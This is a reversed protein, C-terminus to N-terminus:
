CLFIPASWCVASRRFYSGAVIQQKSQFPSYTCFKSFTFVLNPRISGLLAGRAARQALNPLEIVDALMYYADYRLLPNGNFVLTSVGAVLIVNFYVARVLGPEVALWLYFALAAIFIEVLM